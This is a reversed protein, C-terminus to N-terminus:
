KIEGELLFISLTKVKGIRYKLYLSKFYQKCSLAVGSQLIQSAVPCISQAVIKVVTPRIHVRIWVIPITLSDYKLM